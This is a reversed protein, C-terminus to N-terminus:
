RNKMERARWRLIQIFVEVTYGEEVLWDSADQLARGYIFRRDAAVANIPTGAGRVPAMDILEEDSPLPLSSPELARDLRKGLDDAPITTPWGKLVQSYTKAIEIAEDKQKETLKRQM